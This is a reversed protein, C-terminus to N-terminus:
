EDTMLLTRRAEVIVGHFTCDKFNIDSVINLPSIFKLNATLFIQGIQIQKATNSIVVFENNKPERDYDVIIVTGARFEPAFLNTEVKVAFAQANIDTDTSVSKRAQNLKIEPWRIIDEWVILPVINQRNDKPTIFTGPIRDKPLPVRALLQDPTINFFFALPEISELRPNNTYGSLIRHITPQPISTRRSLEGESINGIDAMLFRLVSGASDHHRDSEAIFMTKAPNSNILVDFSIEFFDTIKKILLQSPKQTKGMLLRNLTAQSVNISSALQAESGIGHLAMLEKIRQGIDM